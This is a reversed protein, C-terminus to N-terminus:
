RGGGVREFRVRESGVSLFADFGADRWASQQVNKKDPQKSNAWWQPRAASNPLMCGLVLEIDRFTMEIDATRQRRLHDRLRDYKGVYRRGEALIM